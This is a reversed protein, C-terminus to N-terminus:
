KMKYWIASTGGATPTGSFYHPMGVFNAASGNGNNGNIVAVYYWGAGGSGLNTLTGLTTTTMAGLTPWPVSNNALDDFDFLQSGSSPPTISAFGAGGNGGPAPPGYSPYGSVYNPGGAGGSGIIVRISVAGAPVTLVDAISVGAGSPSTSAADYYNGSSGGAGGGGAGRTGAGGAGGFGGGAGGQAHLSSGGQVGLTNANNYWVSDGAGTGGAATIVSGIVNNSSNLFAVTTAVGASGGPNGPHFSDVWNNAGGGGGGTIVVSILSGVGSTITFTHTGATDYETSTGPVGTELLIGQTILRGGSSMRISSQASTFDLGIANTGGSTVHRGIFGGYMGDGYANKNWHLGSAADSFEIPGNMLIKDSEVTGTTINGGEITTTNLTYINNAVTLDQIDVWASGNYRYMRNADDIDVWLDGVSLSTTPETAVYYTTIKGDATAQADEALIKLGADQNDVWASGSWRYPKNGDDTDFWLDGFSMGTTPETTQFFSEIKGDATAQATTALLKLGLDQTDAWSTGSYRYPKNGDDTDFWLDGVSLDTTPAATQFYTTIKGDATAQADNALAELGSDQAIIWLSGSWRYPKNGDDTDFWLDGESMGTIPEAAQFFSEIKGDAIAQVGAIENAILASRLGDAYLKAAAEADSASGVPDASVTAAGIAGVGSLVIKTADITNAQIKDGVITGDVVLDGEILNDITVWSDIGASRIYKGVLTGDDYAIVVVSGYGLEKQNTFPRGTFAIAAIIVDQIWVTDGLTPQNFGTKEYRIFPFGNQAAQVPYVEWPGKQGDITFRDALWMTDTLPGGLVWTVGAGPADPTGIDSRLGHKTTRYRELEPPATSSDIWEYALPNTSATINGWWLGRWSKISGEPSLPDSSFGVVDSQAVPPQTTVDDAYRVHLISADLAWAGNSFLWLNNTSANYHTDGETYSGAEPDGNSVYNHETSSGSTRELSRLRRQLETESINAM